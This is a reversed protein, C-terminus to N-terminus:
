ILPEIIIKKCENMILENLIGQIINMNNDKSNDTLYLRVIYKNESMPHYITELKDMFTGIVIYNDSQLVAKQWIPYFDNFTDEQIMSGFFITYDYDKFNLDTAMSDIKVFDFSVKINGICGVQANLDSISNIFTSKGTQTKGICLIRVNM